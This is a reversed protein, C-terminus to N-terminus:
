FPEPIDQVDNAIQAWNVNALWNPPLQIPPPIASGDPRPAIVGLEVFKVAEAKPNFDPYPWYSVDMGAVAAMAYFNQDVQMFSPGYGKRCYLGYCGALNIINELYKQFRTAETANINKPLVLENDRNLYVAGRNAMLTQWVSTGNVANYQPVQEISDPLGLAKSLTKLLSPMLMQRPLQYFNSVLAGLGPKAIGWARAAVNMPAKSDPVPFAVPGAPSFQAPEYKPDEEVRVKPATIRHFLAVFSDPCDGALWYKSYEGEGGHRYCSNEGLTGLRIFSSPAISLTTQISTNQNGWALEGLRQLLKEWAAKLHPSVDLEELARMISASVRQGVKIRAIIDKPYRGYQNAAGHTSGLYLQHDAKPDLDAHLQGHLGDDQMYYKAALTKQALIQHPALIAYSTAIQCAARTEYENIQGDRRLNGLQRLFASWEEKAVTEAYSTDEVVFPEGRFRWGKWREFLNRHLMYSRQVFDEVSIRLPTKARVTVGDPMAKRCADVEARLVDAITRSKKETSGEAKM